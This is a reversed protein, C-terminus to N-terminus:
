FISIFHTYFSIVLFQHCTYLLIFSPLSEWEEHGLQAEARKPPFATAVPHPGAHAPALHPSLWRQVSADCVAPDGSVARWGRLQYHDWFVDKPRTGKFSFMRQKPNSSQLSYSTQACCRQQLSTALLAAVLFYGSGKKKKLKRFKLRKNKEGQSQM